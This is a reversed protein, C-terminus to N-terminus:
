GNRAGVHMRVALDTTGDGATVNPRVWRTYESVQELRASTFTLANGQPDTLTFWTGTAPDEDNCGQFSLSGGAGFTGTVAVSKDPGFVSYPAGTDGNLLGSWGVTRGNSAVQSATFSRETM